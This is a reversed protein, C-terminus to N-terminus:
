KREDIEFDDDKKFFSSADEPKEGFTEEDKPEEIEDTFKAIVKPSGTFTPVPFIM